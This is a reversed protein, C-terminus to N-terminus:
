YGDVYPSRSSRAVREIWLPRMQQNKLMDLLTTNMTQTNMYQFVCVAAMVVVLIWLLYEAHVLRAELNEGSGGWTDRGQKLYGLPQTARLHAIERALETDDNSEITDAVLNKCPRADTTRILDELNTRIYNMRNRQELGRDAYPNSSTLVGKSTRGVGELMRRTGESARGQSGQDRLKNQRLKFESDDYNVFRMPNVSVQDYGYSYSDLFDM